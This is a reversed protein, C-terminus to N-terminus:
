QDEAQPRHAPVFDAQHFHKENYEAWEGEIEAPYENRVKASASRLPSTEGFMRKLNDHVGRRQPMATRLGTGAKLGRRNPAQCPLSWRVYHQALKKPLEGNGPVENETAQSRVGLYEAGHSALTRSVSPSARILKPMAQSHKGSSSNWWFLLMDM